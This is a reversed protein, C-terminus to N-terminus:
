RGGHNPPLSRCVDKKCCVQSFQGKTGSSAVDEHGFKSGLLLPESFAVLEEQALLYVFGAEGEVLLAPKMEQFSKLHM